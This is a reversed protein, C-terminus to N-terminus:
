TPLVVALVMGADGTSEVEISGEHETIIRRCICLGLGLGEQKTTSFPDFLHPVLDTPIGDGTDALRIRVGGAVSETSIHLKGGNPMADLANLALNLFVQQVADVVLNLSPLGEALHMEITVNQDRARRALLMTAHELLANVEVSTRERLDTHRNMDRLRTLLGDARVLERCVVELYRAFDEGDAAAERALQVCGIAAQLPNKIEHVLSAALRGTAGLKEAQILAQQALRAETIDGVMWVYYAAMTEAADAAGARGCLIPACASLGKITSVAVELTGASGDDRVFTCEFRRPQESPTDIGEPLAVLDAMSAGRLAQDDRGLLTQLAPNTMLIGGHADTLAIGIASGEFVARFFAESARLEATRQRVADELAAAHRQVAEHLRARELGIVALNALAQLAQVAEQDFQGPAHGYAVLVGLVDADRILPLAVMSALGRALADSRWVSACATDNSLDNVLVVACTRLARSIPDDDPHLTGARSGTTPLPFAAARDAMPGAMAHPVLEEVGGTQSAAPLLLGVWALRLGLRDAVLRCVQDLMAQTDLTAHLARTAEYLAALDDMRKRLAREARVRARRVQAEKMEREIAPGLRALRGKMLYDHCGAKMAEVAVDEGMVGSILIFPIDLGKEQVLRLADLGTFGYLRYDSIIVDWAASDLAVGLADLTEVRQDAFAYGAHRLERLILLADDESDEVILIRIPMKVPNARRIPSATRRM